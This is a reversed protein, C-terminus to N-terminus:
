NKIKAIVNSSHQRNCQVKRIVDYGFGNLISYLKEIEYLGNGNRKGCEAEIYM